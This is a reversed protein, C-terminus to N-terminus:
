VGTGKGQAEHILRLGELTLEPNTATITQSLEAVRPALGGTAVVPAEYGLQAFIRRVLGDVRDAEGYVIGAQIAQETSGGIATHPDVLDIAALRTARSFLAAASTDVGPAIVGGIFRGERDVVEINTATGFDVVVVPAGYLSRAAVADAVRDAGVSSPDSFAMKLGSKLGPGVTLPRTGTLRRAAEVWVETLSPFVSAIIAGDALPARAPLDGPALAADPALPTLGCDVADFFTAVVAVAEDATCGGDTGVSWQAALVGGTALGLRTHTNRIDIALILDM